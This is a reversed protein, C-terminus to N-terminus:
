FKGSTNVLMNSPKVDRHMIGMSWLYQLGHVVMVSIRGLAPEEIPKYRDLSGGDMYETAIYIENGHFFAGWFSSM